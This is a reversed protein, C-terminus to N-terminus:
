TLMPLLKNKRESHTDRQERRTIVQSKIGQSVLLSFCLKLKERSNLFASVFTVVAVTIVTHSQVARRETVSEGLM